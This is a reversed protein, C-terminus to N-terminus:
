RALLLDCPPNRILASSFGGLIYRGANSRTHAGIVVLDYDEKAMVDQLAEGPRAEVYIPEPLDDPLAHMAQWTAYDREAEKRFSVEHAHFVAVEAKPAIENIRHLGAACVASLDVGALVRAYSAEAERAVLLVPVHSARVLHEMTTEKIHDLFIRRRHLGVVLLEAEVSRLLDNIEAIADGIPVVIDYAVTHGDVAATVERTLLTRAEQQVQEAMREPMAADVVHVVTLKAANSRALDVARRVAPGSRESLDSAVVINKVPENEEM